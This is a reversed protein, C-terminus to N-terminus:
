SVLESIQIENNIHVLIQMKSGNGCTKHMFQKVIYTEVAYHRKQLQAHTYLKSFSHRLQEM